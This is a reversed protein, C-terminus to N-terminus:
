ELHIHRAVKLSQNNQRMGTTNIFCTSLFLSFLALCNWAEDVTDLSYIGKVLGVLTSDYSGFNLNSESTYARTTTLSFSIIHMNM